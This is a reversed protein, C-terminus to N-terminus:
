SSFSRLNSHAAAYAGAAEKMGAAKHCTEEFEQEPDSGWTIGSGTFFKMRDGRIECTRIAINFQATGDFGFYGIAGTYIGRPEPELEEIIEMSRKKPAGTISGGPFCARVAEVMNVDQKLRGEVTSVLHHVHSFEESKLLEPVQVTGYDCIRGLDNRELDTIMVLEAIEKESTRLEFANQRDRMPDHDRPRTGKIPRTSIQRGDIRLFLEPSSSCVWSETDNVQFPIMAALPAQTRWHLVKFFAYPDLGEIETEFSRALNVQYIDGAAIHERAAEVMECYSERSITEQWDVAGAATSPTSDPLCSERSVVEVQDYAEFYYEGEYSFGGVLAGPPVPDDCGQQVHESVYESLGQWDGSYFKAVPDRFCFAQEPLHDPFLIARPDSAM